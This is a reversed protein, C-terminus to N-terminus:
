PGAGRAAFPTSPAGPNRLPVARRPTSSASAAGTPASVSSASPSIAHRAMAGIVVGDRGHVIGFSLEVYIQTGDHRMSKTPLAQGRYKTEGAALARDYGAWHRERLSEPIIIDLSQGIVDSASWGFIREAGPNWARIVGDLDAFITADPSEELLRVALDSDM